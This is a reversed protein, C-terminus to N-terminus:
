KLKVMKPGLHVIVALIASLGVISLLLLPDEFAPLLHMMDGLLFVSIPIAVLLLASCIGVVGARWKSYPRCLFILNMLASVTVAATAIASSAASSLGDGKGIIQVLFVPILMVAANPISNKLVAKMYSGEARKFNPELALMVSSLGIVFLEVFLLQKPDFPYGSLTMVSLMSLVVTFVTKMLFLVSSMRVNNICRRGEKVVDPLVGFDSNMLVIKSVGRAVESGDAMAISCDSEKLALTDNVGDGTMAVTHGLSKLTKVLLIKQEPTVRGFIAYDEAIAALEEDSVSECSIYNEAGNIGVRKAIASVTEPNDGSIVKVTVGQDQFKKITDAANPRIRDTIAILAMAEGMEELKNQKVLLLVREGMAARESIKESLEPSVPCMVFGPAGVSFCGEGEINVSSYKRASSFPISDIIKAEKDAGFKDILARSTNNVSSEAGEIKSMIRAIYEEGAGLLDETYSVTMTGDTITGTKDLCVVDASALMEISYMDKILSGRKGLTIVSLSLTLTVLLFVGSPIMGIISGCTKNIATIIDREYSYFNSLFLLVALPILMIGIYKILVNLERFLNSSPAKFSKAASEIKHVYNDKGVSTVKAYVAGSVLFSGALVRDGKEKKIPVSEGTLMSENVEASGSLVVGDSPVEKGIEIYVTDGLVIDSSSLEKLEGDRIASAKPDTTVSLKEVTMKARIEQITAILMNPIVVLLFTLNAFSGIAVLVATVVLWIMNFFTFVNDFIIRVYSKGIKATVKNVKGELALASAEASTLGILKEEIIETENM